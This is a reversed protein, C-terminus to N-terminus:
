SRAFMRDREIEGGRRERGGREERKFWRWEIPAGEVRSVLMLQMM